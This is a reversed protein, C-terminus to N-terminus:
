GDAFRPTRAPWWTRAGIDLALAPLLISRVVLTDLLVGFAVLFALQVLFLLPIVALAAFTAALVVGASTIVGGTVTLARLMGAHNGHRLVEERARTMLFINYDVGLAILFVFAYLPVAPDVGPFALLHDFVLAGVGLTAAFSLVTTSVLLIPAVISRLLAILVALVVALVLPVIVVLDREASELTDLKTASSGGVLADAGQVGHVTGRLDDLTDLARESEAPAALDAEILVTGDVVMPEGNPAVAQPGVVGEVGEAAEVVETRDEADATILAPEASATEGFGRQLVQRGEVAEVETRFVESQATGEAEFQVTFVAGLALVAATGVWWTRPRRGLVAAVGGWMRHRALVDGTSDSDTGGRYRPRVPWFAARGTLLLVAPLFTLASALACAIGVAAVPGLSRNSSLESALLCLVGLIVTVGSAAIAGASGRLAAGIARTPRRYLSLAERYRAVLLLAYDTCAGVVLIFLIGQSQGNLTLWGADAAAYILAGALALALVSSTIVLLPLTPSRYVAVLIAFVAGLAVALLTTDIGAFAASLDAAFGAPGTVYARPQAGGHELASRLDNVAAETDADESVPVVLQAVSPDEDGPIPGAVTGSTWDFESIREGDEAIAALEARGLDASGEYVVVAPITDARFREAINQVKTSEASVPLFASSDNIQVEGLRGLFSGLSGAGVLWVLALLAAM